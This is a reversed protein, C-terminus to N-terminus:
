KGLLKGVDRADSEGTEARCVTGCEQRGAALSGLVAEKSRIAGPM